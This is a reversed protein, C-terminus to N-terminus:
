HYARKHEEKLVTQLADDIFRFHENKLAAEKQLNTKGTFVVNEIESQKLCEFGYRGNNYEGLFEQETQGPTPIILAGKSLSVLEMLSTYGSRCIVLGANEIYEQLVQAPQSIVFTIRDSFHSLCIDSASLVVLKMDSKEAAKAVKEFLNTRQPEPGSLLLCIYPKTEASVPSLNTFRSLLGAYIANPPLKKLHSLRGALNDAGSVDPILCMDYRRIIMRHTFIGVPEFLRFPKPFPIRLMHTFYVCFVNKNFFGFRNDSIVIDPHKESIIKKLQRHERVSAIIVGPLQMLVALYQPMFRSYHMQIGPVAIVEVGPLEQRVMPILATDVGFIVEHGMQQLNKAVPIMRGAHGFGWNLPSILIKKREEPM